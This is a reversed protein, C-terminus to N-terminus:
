ARSTVEATPYEDWTRGDLVRGAAKKGVKAMLWTRSDGPQHGEAIYGSSEMQVVHKGKVCELYVADMHGNDTDDLDGYLPGLPEWEGHQKFLFAVGAATCQDRLSRAWDPHMPRAQPGSEGGAVLWGLASRDRWPDELWEDRLRIPGLLPEASVWRIWRGPGAALLAPIRIDAWKQDEASVGLWLNPFGLAPGGTVRAEPAMADFVRNMFANSSMLSRMRAHRKTLLQFTHQPASGVVALVRAIYEEPVAEHFLDSQSNVFIRKPKRWHLPQELRDPLLNVRGTWDLRGDRRETLGAFAAAVKPHPNGARITATNIAYCSDCGSSVRTCGLLPNWTADAWEISTNDAM